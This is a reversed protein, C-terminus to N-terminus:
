PNIKFIWRNKGNKFASLGKTSLENYLESDYPVVFWETRIKFASSVFGYGKEEVEKHFAKETAHKRIAKTQCFNILEVTPNYTAYAKLRKELDKTFGIKFLCYNRKEDKLLYVYNM